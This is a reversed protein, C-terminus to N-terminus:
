TASEEPTSMWETIAEADLRILFGSPAGLVREIADAYVGYTDVIENICNLDKRNQEFSLMLKALTDGMGRALTLIVGGAQDPYSTTFVGEQVGQRVIEALLPTRREVIAENVKERVIANDDTFWVRVLNAIFAKQATRAVDLTAFYGQLKETASTHPDHVIALLPQEVELQMQEILAELLAARSAFYHHFAGSSIHIEDLIDQISMQEYGKTFVLRQATNLIDRRKSAFEEPNVTRAM